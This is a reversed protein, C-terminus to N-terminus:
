EKIAKTLGKQTFEISVYEIDRQKIQFDLRSGFCRHEMNKAVIRFHLLKLVVNFLTDTYASSQVTVFAVVQKAGAGLPHLGGRKYWQTIISDESDAATVRSTKVWSHASKEEIQQCLNDGGAQCQFYRFFM